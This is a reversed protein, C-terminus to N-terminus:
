NRYSAQKGTVILHAGFRHHNVKSENIYFVYEHINEPYYGLEDLYKVHVPMKGCNAGIVFANSIAGVVVMCFLICLIGTTKCNNCKIRPM